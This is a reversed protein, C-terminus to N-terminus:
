GSMDALAAATGHQPFEQKDESEGRIEASGGGGPGPAEVM